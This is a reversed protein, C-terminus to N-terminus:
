RHINITMSQEYVENGFPASVELNVREFSQVKASFFLPTTPRGGTQGHEIELFRLLYGKMSCDGCATLADVFFGRHDFTLVDGRQALKFASHWHMNTLRRFEDSSKQEPAHAALFTTPSTAGECCSQQTLAGGSVRGWRESKNRFLDVFRLEPGIDPGHPFTLAVTLFSDLPDCEDACKVVPNVSFNIRGPSGSETIAYDVSQCGSIDFYRTCSRATLDCSEGIALTGAPLAFFDTATLVPMASRDSLDCKSQALAAGALVISIWAIALARLMARM